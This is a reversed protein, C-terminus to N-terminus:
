GLRQGQKKFNSGSFFDVSAQAVFDINGVDFNGNALPSCTRDPRCTQWIRADCPKASTLLRPLWTIICFTEASLVVVTGTGSWRSSRTPVRIDIM